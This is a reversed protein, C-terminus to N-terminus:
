SFCHQMNSESLVTLIVYYFLKQCIFTINVTVFIIIIDNQIHSMVSIYLHKDGLYTHTHFADKYKLNSLLVFNHQLTQKM